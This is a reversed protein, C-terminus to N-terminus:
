GSVAAAGPLAQAVEVCLKRSKLRIEETREQHARLAFFLQGALNADFLASHLGSRKGGASPIAGVFQMYASSLSPGFKKAPANPFDGMLELSLNMTCCGTTALRSLIRADDTAGVRLFEERLIGADFELHHGVLTGGNKNIDCLVRALRQLADQLPIGESALIADTISHYNEAKYQIGGPVDSLQVYIEQRDLESGDEDFLTWGLQVVRAYRLQWKSEWLTKGFQGRRSGGKREPHSLYVCKSCTSAESPGHKAACSAREAERERRAFGPETEAWGHTEIDVALCRRPRPSSGAAQSVERRLLASQRNAEIRAKKRPSIVHEHDM